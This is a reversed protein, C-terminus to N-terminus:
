SFWATRAPSWTPGANATTTRSVGARHFEEGACRPQIHADGAERRLTPMTSLRLEVEDGQPTRTKVRGDQPRRKEVVDMRGLEQHPEDMAGMVPTPIQYVQHCARRDIRFRVNGARTAAGPPHRQGNTSRTSSCGDVITVVTRDNATSSEARASSSWSSSTPSTASAGQSQQSAGRFRARSTYFEIQYNAIDQPKAVVAQHSPAPDPVARSGVGARLSALPSWSTRPTSRCPCYPLAHRLRKSMVKTVAAFDIKFPDIHMYPLDVKGALWESLPELGLLHTPHRPDKWKQDAVIILPHSDGKRLAKTAIVADAAERSVLKDAVLDRLVEELTLRRDPLRQPTAVARAPPVSRSSARM